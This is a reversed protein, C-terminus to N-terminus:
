ASVLGAESCGMDRLTKSRNLIPMPGDLECVTPGMRAAHRKASPNCRSSSSAAVALRLTSSYPESPAVPLPWPLSLATSSPSSPSCGSDTSVSLM